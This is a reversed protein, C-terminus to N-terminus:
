FHTRHWDQLPILPPRKEWDSFTEQNIRGGTEILRPVFYLPVLSVLAFPIFGSLGAQIFMENIWPLLISGFASIRILFLYALHKLNVQYVELTYSIM